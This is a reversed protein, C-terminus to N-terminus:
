KTREANLEPISLEQEIYNEFEGVTKFVKTSMGKIWPHHLRDTIIYAPHRLVWSNYFLEMPTGFSDANDIIFVVVGDYKEILRLDRTIFNLAREKTMDERVCLLDNETVGEEDADYFPNHLEINFKREFKLEWERISERRSQPHALYLKIGSKIIKAM